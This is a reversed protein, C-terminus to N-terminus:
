RDRLRSAAERFLETSARPTRRRSPDDFDVAYLGFRGHFGDAWEFNDILSWYLYGRVDAGALTARSVAFLHARLFDSRRTDSSDAIGNETVYLPWGHQSYRMLVRFLGEPFIDGGLETKPRHGPVYLQSLSPQGLDARVFLRYYYNLGLFDVSGRLEEAPEDLDVQGPVRLQIRGAKLARPVAENAYDDSVGAVVQDLESSSAPQLLVVHHALGIATASGDGDADWVDSFRLAAAGRGHARLLTAYVRTARKVDQVGPPWRGTLYGYLAYVNPENVTVWFDVQQGFAAGVRSAFREFADLAGEWEWGGRSSVWTPLTFHHVTVFVAINRARLAEFMKRYRAEAQADWEGPRPELRSWEISMRYVNAGISELASVDEPWLDWSRAALGSRDDNRIHPTGDPFRGAEWETWSNSLGGEVQHAATAAGLLFGAPLDEGARYTELEASDFRPGCAM